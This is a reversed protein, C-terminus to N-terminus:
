KRKGQERQYQAVQKSLEAQEIQWHRYEAHTMWKKGNSIMAEGNRVAM